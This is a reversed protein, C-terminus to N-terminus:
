RVGGYGLLEDRDHLLLTKRRDAREALKRMVNLAIEGTEIRAIDSHLQTWDASRLIADIDPVTMAADIAKLLAQHDALSQKKAEAMDPQPPPQPASGNTAPQSERPPSAARARAPAISATNGTAVNADDDDEAALGLALMLGYRRAYTVGSAFGQAGRSEDFFIPYDCGFWEGSQHAIITRMVWAGSRSALFQRHALGADAMPKKVTEYIEELPAYKYSYNFDSGGRSKGAVKAEKTRKPAECVGQMACLAGFVQACEPSAFIPNQQRSEAVPAPVTARSQEIIEGTQADYDTM